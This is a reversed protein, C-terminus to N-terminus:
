DKYKNQNFFKSIHLMEIGYRSFEMVCISLFVKLEM